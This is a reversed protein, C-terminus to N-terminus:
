RSFGKVDQWKESQLGSLDWEKPFYIFDHEYFKPLKIYGITFDLENRSLDITQSKGDYIYNLNLDYEGKRLKFYAWGVNAAQSRFNNINM